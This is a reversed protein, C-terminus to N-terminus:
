RDRFVVTSPTVAGNNGTFRLQSSTPAISVTATDAFEVTGGNQVTIEAIASLGTIIGAGEFRLSGSGDVYIHAPNGTTSLFPVDYRLEGLTVASNIVAPGRGPQGLLRNFVAVAGPGNPVLGTDWNSSDTWSLLPGGPGPAIWTSTQAPLSSAVAALLAVRMSRRLSSSPRSFRTTKM